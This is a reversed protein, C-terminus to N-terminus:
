FGCQKGEPRRRWTLGVTAAGDVEMVLTLGIAKGGLFRRISTISSGGGATSEAGLSQGDVVVEPGIFYGQGQRADGCRDRSGFGRRRAGTSATILELFGGGGDKSAPWNWWRGGNPSWWFLNGV